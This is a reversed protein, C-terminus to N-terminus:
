TTLNRVNFAKAHDSVQPGSHTASGAIDIGVVGQDAFDKCM